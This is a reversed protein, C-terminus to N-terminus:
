NETTGTKSEKHTWNAYEAADSREPVRLEGLEAFAGASRAGPAYVGFAMDSDRFSKLTQGLGM